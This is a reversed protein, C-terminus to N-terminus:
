LIATSNTIVNIVLEGVENFECEWLCNLCRSTFAVLWIHHQSKGDIV